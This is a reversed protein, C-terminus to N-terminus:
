KTIKHNLADPIHAKDESYVKFKGGFKDSLIACSIKGDAVAFVLISEEIGCNHAMCSTSVIADGDKDFPAEVQMRDMFFTYNPGLLARLRKKLQPSQKFVDSPYQGVWSSVDRTAQPLNARAITSDRVDVLVFLIVFLSITSLVLRM